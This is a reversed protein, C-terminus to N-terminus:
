LLEVGGAELGALADEPADATKVEYGERRLFQSLSQLIIRDEDLVLIRAKPTPANAPQLMLAMNSQRHSVTPRAIGNDAAAVRGGPQHTGAVAATSGAGRADGKQMPM